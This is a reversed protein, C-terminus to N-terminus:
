RAEHIGGIKLGFDYDSAKEEGLCGALDELVKQPDQASESLIRIEGKSIVIKLDKILGAKELDQKHIVLNGESSIEFAETSM